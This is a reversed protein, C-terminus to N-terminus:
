ALEFFLPGHRPQSVNPCLRYWVFPLIDVAGLRFSAQLLLLGLRPDHDAHGDPSGVVCSHRLVTYGRLGRRGLGFQCKEATEKEMERERERRTLFSRSWQVLYSSSLLFEVRAGLCRSLSQIALELLHLRLSLVERLFSVASDM